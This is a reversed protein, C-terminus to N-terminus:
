ATVHLQFCGYWEKGDGFPAKKSFLGTALSQAAPAPTISSGSLNSFDLVLPAKTECDCEVDKSTFHATGTLCWALSHRALFPHTVQYFLGSAACVERSPCPCVAVNGRPFTLPPFDSTPPSQTGALPCLQPEQVRVSLQLGNALSLTGHARFDLCFLDM